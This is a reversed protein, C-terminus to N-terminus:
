SPWRDFPWRDFPPPALAPHAECSAVIDGNLFRCGCTAAGTYPQLRLTHRRGLRIRM